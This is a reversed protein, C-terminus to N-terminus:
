FVPDLLKWAFMSVIQMFHWIDSGKKPPFFLFFVILNDDASNAWLTNFTLIFLDSLSHFILDLTSKSM